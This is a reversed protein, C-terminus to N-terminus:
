RQQQAMRPNCWMTVLEQTREQGRERWTATVRETFVTPLKGFGLDDRLPEMRYSLVTLPDTVRKDLNFSRERMDDSRQERAEFLFQQLFLSRQMRGIATRVRAMTSSQVWMVPLMIFGILALALLVELLTFGAKNELRMVNM